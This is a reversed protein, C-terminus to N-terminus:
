LVRLDSGNHNFSLHAGEFVPPDLDFLTLQEGSFPFPTRAPTVTGPGGGVKM